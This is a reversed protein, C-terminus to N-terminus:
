NKSTQDNKTLFYRELATFLGRSSASRVDWILNTRWVIKCLPREFRTCPLRWLIWPSKKDSPSLHTLSFDLLEDLIAEPEGFFHELHHDINHIGLCGTLFGQWAKHDCKCKSEISEVVEFEIEWIDLKGPFHSLCQFPKCKTFSCNDSEM